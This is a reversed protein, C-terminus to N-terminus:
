IQQHPLTLSQKLSVTPIGCHSLIIVDWVKLAVPRNASAVRSEMKWVTCSPLPHAMVILAIRQKLMNITRPSYMYGSLFGKAKLDQKSLYMPNDQCRWLFHIIYIYTHTRTVQSHVIVPIVQLIMIVNHDGRIMDHWKGIGAAWVWCGTKGRIGFHLKQVQSYHFEITTALEYLMTWCFCGQSWYLLEEQQLHFGAEHSSVLSRLRDRAWIHPRSDWSISPVPVPRQGCAYLLLWEVSM